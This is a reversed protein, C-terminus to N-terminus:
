EKPVSDPIITPADVRTLTGDPNRIYTCAATPQELVVPEEQPTEDPM